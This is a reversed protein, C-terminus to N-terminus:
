FFVFRKMSRGIRIYIYIYIHIYGLYNSFQNSHIIYDYTVTFLLELPSPMHCPEGMSNGFSIWSVPFLWSSYRMSLFVFNDLSKSLHSCSCFRLANHVVSHSVNSQKSYLFIYIYMYIYIRSCQSFKSIVKLLTKM